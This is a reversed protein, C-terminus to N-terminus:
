GGIVIRGILLFVISFIKSTYDFKVRSSWFMSYGISSSLHFARAWNMNDMSLFYFTTGIFLWLIRCYLLITTYYYLVIYYCYM